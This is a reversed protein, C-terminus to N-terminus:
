SFVIFSNQCSVKTFSILKFSSKFRNKSVIKRINRIVAKLRLLPM